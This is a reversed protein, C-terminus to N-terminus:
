VRRPLRRPDPQCELEGAQRLMSVHHRFTNLAPELQAEPPSEPDPPVFIALQEATKTVWNSWRQCAVLDAGYCGIRLTREFGPFIWIGRQPRGWTLAAHLLLNITFVQVEFETFSGDEGFIEDPIMRGEQEAWKLVRQKRELKHPSLIRGATNSVIERMELFSGFIRRAQRLERHNGLALFQWYYRIAKQFTAPLRGVVEDDEFPNMFFAYNRNM